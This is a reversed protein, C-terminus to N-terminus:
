VVSVKELMRLRQFPKVLNRPAVDLFLKVQFTQINIYKSICTNAFILGGVHNVILRNRFTGHWCNDQTCFPGTSVTHTSRHM